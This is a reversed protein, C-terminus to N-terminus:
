RATARDRGVEHCGPRMPRGPRASRWRQRVTSGGGAPRVGTGPRRRRWCRVVRGVWSRSRNVRAPRPVTGAARFAKSFAAALRPQDTRRMRLLSVKQRSTTVPSSSRRTSRARSEGGFRGGSVLMAPGRECEFFEGAPLQEGEEVAGFGTVEGIDVGDCLAVVDSEQEFACGLDVRSEVRGDQGGHESAQGSEVVAVDGYGCLGDGVEAPVEVVPLLLQEYLGGTVILGSPPM